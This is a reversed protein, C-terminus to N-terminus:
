STQRWRQELQKVNPLFRSICEKVLNSGHINENVFEIISSAVGAAIVIAREAQKLRSDWDTFMIDKHSEEM